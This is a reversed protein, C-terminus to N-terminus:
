AAKMRSWSPLLSAATHSLGSYAAGPRLAGGRCLDLGYRRRGKGGRKQPSAVRSGTAGGM